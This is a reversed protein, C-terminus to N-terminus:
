PPVVIKKRRAFFVRGESENFKDHRKDNKNAIGNMTFAPRGCLAM